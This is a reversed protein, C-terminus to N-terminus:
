KFLLNGCKKCRDKEIPNKERCVNCYIIRDRSKDYKEYTGFRPHYRVRDGVAFYNYFQRENKEQISSKRGSDSTFETYYATYRRYDSSHRAVREMKEKSYKRTVTGEWMPRKASLSVFFGIILVLLAFGGGIVLADTIPLEEVLLGLVSLIVLPAFALIWMCGMNSKRNKAAAALIEPSNYRESFGILGAGGTLAAGCSPCFRAANSIPEGCQGCYKAM